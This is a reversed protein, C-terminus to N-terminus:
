APNPTRAPPADAPLGGLALDAIGQVRPLLAVHLVEDMKEVFTFAMHEKVENPV